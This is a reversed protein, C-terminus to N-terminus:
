IWSCIPCQKPDHGLAPCYKRAFHIMQLHLKNWDAPDYLKKLDNETTVTNKGSSLKWRKASRHIHTDVPIAPVNFAQSMVVSATKHGVGPLKELDEFTNPVKGNYEDVIIQSLNKLAHAKTNSLGCVRILDRIESEDLKAMAQPTKALAFLAPTVENVRNDTCRASLVVAVLLTFPDEHNLPISPSPFLQDLIEQIKQAREKKKM